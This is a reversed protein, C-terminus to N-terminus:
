ENIYIKFRVKGGADYIVKDALEVPISDSGTAVVVTNSRSLDGITVKDVFLFNNLAGGQYSIPNTRKVFLAYIYPQGYQSSVVIQSVKPYGDTGHEYKTVLEFMELYGDKFDDASNVPYKTYYDKSYSLFLFGHILFFTGIFSTILINKEQHTGKIKKNLESSAIKEITWSFGTLSLWIFAPLALLARNSHPIDRGIAAPVMACIIWLIVFTFFRSKFLQTTKTKILPSSIVAVLGILVCIFTTLFLVGWQGDGHRLTDTHGGVLFYPSFHQWMHMAITQAKQSLPIELGFVSAQTFREGGAGFFTDKILPILLLTGLVGTAITKVRNQLNFLVERNLIVLILLILPVFIKTSHYTYLSGAFCFASLLLWIVSYKKENLFYFIFLFAWVIWTLALGSEFGVRSFHIHWPSLAFFIGAIVSLRRPELWVNVKKPVLYKDLLEKTLLIFGLVAFIGGLAFPLRVVWLDSGLFTVFVGVTYIAFPAKYDGFSKFSVPLKQLWEDRRATIIGYGNYAIAAEDWTMGHPVTGLQHLRLVSAVLVVMVISLFYWYRAWFKSLMSVIM